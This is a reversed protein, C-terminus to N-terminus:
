LFTQAAGLVCYDDDVVPVLRWCQFSTCPHSVYCGVLDGVTLASGSPVSVRAHHDNLSLVEADGPQVRYTAGGRPVVAFPVPLGRDIGADRKGINVIALGPEPRSIVTGWLELAPRLHQGNLSRGALPSLRDMEGHDHLVYQGSRVVTRVPRDGAWDSGLAAIVYDPWLSGGATVLIEEEEDLLGASELRTTLFRLDEFFSGIAGTTEGDTSHPFMGEYAEVGALTLWRLGSVERALGVAEDVTRCGCRGGPIGYEILVRLPVSPRTKALCDDLLRAGAMSDVLCYLEVGTDAALMSALWQVSAADVVENALILRRAGIAHMVAAQRVDAVTLGWAGAALQRAAIQPSLPTKVHPALSVGHDACYEAMLDINHTLASDKVVMVPTSFPPRLANWGQVGVEGVRVPATTVPFAKNELGVARAEIASLDLDGGALATM